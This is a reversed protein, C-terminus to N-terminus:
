GILLQVDCTEKNITPLTIDQLHSWANLDGQTVINRKSIPIKKVTLVKDLEVTERGDVSTVNCKVEYGVSESAQENVTTLHFKRRKGKLRLAKSLREDCLSVDSCDDLLAYTNVCPGGHPGCVKVPVIRLLIRKGAETACTTTYSGYTSRCKDITKDDKDSDHLTFHTRQSTSNEEPPYLLTSHKWPVECFRFSCSKEQSCKSSRHGRKFCNDRLGKERSFAKQDSYSMARFSPCEELEHDKDCMLCKLVPESEPYENTTVFTSVYRQSAPPRSSISPTAKEPQQALDLGYMTNAVKAQQQVFRM